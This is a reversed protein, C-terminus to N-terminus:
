FENMGWGRLRALPFPERFCSMSDYSAQVGEGRVCKLKKKGACTRQHREGGRGGGGDMRADHDRPGAAADPAIAM